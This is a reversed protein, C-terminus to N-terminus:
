PTFNAPCLTASYAAAPTSTGARSGILLWYATSPKISFTLAEPGTQATKQARVVAELPSANAEFLLYDLNTSTGAWALRVTLENTTSGTMFAYTDKDEYLDPAAINAANGSLRQDGNSPTLTLGTPEPSDGGSATLMPAMGSALQIVDNGNNSGGDNAEAYGGSGLEPCRIAPSDSLLKVQYPATTAIAASSLAFVTLEYSGAPLHVSTVGHSGYYTLTGVLTNATDATRVDIGAFEIQDIGTGGLRLLLDGDNAVAVIFSDVDVTIDGDFHSADFSGCVVTETSYTLGTAEPTGSALNDNTTDAQETYDCDSKTDSPVDTNAADHGQHQGGDDGCAAVVALLAALSALRPM